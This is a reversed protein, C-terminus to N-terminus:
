RSRAGKLYENQVKASPQALKAAARSPPLWLRGDLVKLGISGTDM